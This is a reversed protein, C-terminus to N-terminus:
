SSQRIVKNGRRRTVDTRLTPFTHISYIFIDSSIDINSNNILMLGARIRVESTMHSYKQKLDETLQQLRENESTLLSNLKSAVQWLSGESIFVFVVKIFLHPRGEAVSWNVTIM